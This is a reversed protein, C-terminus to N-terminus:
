NQIGQYYIKVFKGTNNDSKYKRKESDTLRRLIKNENALIKLINLIQAYACHYGMSRSHSLKAMNEWQSDMFEKSSFPENNRESCFKTLVMIAAQKCTVMETPSKEPKVRLSDIDIAPDVLYREIIERIKPREDVSQRIKELIRDIHKTSNGRASSFLHLDLFV